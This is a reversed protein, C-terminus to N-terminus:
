RPQSPGRQMGDMAGRRVAGALLITTGPVTPGQRVPLPLTAPWGAPQGTLPSAFPKGGRVSARMTASSTCCFHRSFVFFEFMRSLDPSAPFGHFAPFRLGDVSTFIDSRRGQGDQGSADRSMDAIVYHDIVRLVREGSDTRVRLGRGHFGDDLREPDLHDLRDPEGRRGLALRDEALGVEVREQDGGLVHEDVQQGVAARRRHRALLPGAHEAAVLRVGPRLAPEAELRHHLSRVPMGCTRGVCWPRALSRMRNSSTPPGPLTTGLLVWKSVVRALM